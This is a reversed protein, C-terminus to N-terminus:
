RNACINGAGNGFAQGAVLFGAKGHPVQISRWLPRGKHIGTELPITIM